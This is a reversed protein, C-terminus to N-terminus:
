SSTPGGLWQHNIPEVLFGPTGVVILNFEFFIPGSIAGLGGFFSPLNFHFMQRYFGAIKELKESYTHIDTRSETFQESGVRNSRLKLNNLTLSM